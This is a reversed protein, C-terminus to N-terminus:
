KERKKGEERRQKKSDTWIYRETQGKKRREM